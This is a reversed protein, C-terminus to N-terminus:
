RSVLVFERIVEQETIAHRMIDNSNRMMLQILEYSEDNVKHAMHLLKGDILLETYRDTYFERMFNLWMMAYKGLPEEDDTKDNSIQLVPYLYGNKERYELEIANM